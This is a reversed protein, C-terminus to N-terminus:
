VLINNNNKWPLEIVVSTMSVSLAWLRRDRKWRLKVSEAKDCRRAAWRWCCCCCSAARVLSGEAVSSRWIWPWADDASAVDEAERLGRGSVLSRKTLSRWWPWTRSSTEGEVSTVNARVRLTALAAGDTRSLLTLSRMRSFTHWVSHAFAAAM